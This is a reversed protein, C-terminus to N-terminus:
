WWMSASISITDPDPYTTFDYMPPEGNRV